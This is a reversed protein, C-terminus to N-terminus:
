IRFWLETEETEEYYDNYDEQTLDFIEEDSIEPNDIMKEVIFDRAHISGKSSGKIGASSPIAGREQLKHLREFAKGIDVGSVDKGLSKSIETKIDSIYEKYGAMTSTKSSLFSRARSFEQRLRNVRQERTTGKPLKTSFRVDTGLSRYAPSKISKSELRRIRKNSASVLRSTVARLDSEKLRNFDRIDMGMIDSITMGSVDITKKSKAM